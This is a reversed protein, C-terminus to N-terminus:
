DLRKHNKFIVEPLEEEKLLNWRNLKLELNSGVLEPYWEEVKAELEQLLIKYSAGTFHIGDHMLAELDVEDALVEEKSWKGWLRFAEWLNVFPVNYKKAALEVVQSYELNRSNSSWPVNSSRGEAKLFDLVLKKGHLAPGILIPKINSSLAMECLSEINKQFKQIDVSQMRGMSDDVQSADNTGIFITMLKINNKDANLEAKLIEPLIYVLHTSNYGGFGRVLVDLRRSYLNQIAQSFSFNDTSYVSFETISDGLLIFKDYNLTM